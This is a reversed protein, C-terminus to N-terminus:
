VSYLLAGREPENDPQQYIVAGEFDHKKSHQLVKKESFWM